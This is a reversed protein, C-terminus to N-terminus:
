NFKYFARLRRYAFLDIARGLRGPLLVINSSRFRMRRYLAPRRRRLDGWLTRAKRLNEDTGSLWLYITCIMLMMSLYHYMYRALRPEARGVDRLDHADILLRTVLIQQDIRRILNEETVSQDDRGIFYRYLDINMYWLTRVHPLPQYAFLNDVYFTHKPLSLGAERLVDTRYVATHMSLFQAPGLRGLESWGFVRGEPLANGFRMAHRTGDAAHEYVYNCLVLDVPREMRAFARLGELLRDLAEADLWDDSDVVKFYLGRAHRLGQNVGEGHGGNEQHIVRVLAPHAAAWRDAIAGTGDTSGDDVLIIEAEGGARLLTEICRDMYAESNYCPVTFTILKM